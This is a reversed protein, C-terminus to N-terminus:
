TEQPSPSDRGTISADPRIVLDLIKMNHAKIQLQKLSHNGSTPTTHLNPPWPALTLPPPASTGGVRGDTQGDTWCGGGSCDETILRVQVKITWRRSRPGPQTFHSDCMSGLSFIGAERGGDGGSHEALCSVPFCAGVSCGVAAAKVPAFIETDTKQEM